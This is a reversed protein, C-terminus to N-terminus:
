RMPDGALKSIKEAVAKIRAEVEYRWEHDTVLGKGHLFGYIERLIADIQQETM